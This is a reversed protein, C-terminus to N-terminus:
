LKAPEEPGSPRASQRKQARKKPKLEYKQASDAFLPIQYSASEYGDKDLRVELTGSGAAVGARQLQEGLQVGLRQVRGVQAVDAAAVLLQAIRVLGDAAEALVQGLGAIQLRRFPM